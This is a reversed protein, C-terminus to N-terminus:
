LLSGWRPADKGAAARKAASEKVLSRALPSAIGAENLWAAIGARSQRGIKPNDGLFRSVIEAVVRAADSDPELAYGEGDPHPCLLYGYPVRGAGWRGVRRMHKRAGLVRDTIKKGEIEARM